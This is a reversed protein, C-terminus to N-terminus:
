SISVMLLSLRDFNLFFFTKSSPAQFYIVAFQPTQTPNEGKPDLDKPVMRQFLLIKYGGPYPGTLQSNGSERCPRQTPSM